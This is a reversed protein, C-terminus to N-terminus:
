QVGGTLAIFADELTTTHTRLTLEAVSGQAILKGAHLIGVRDALTEVEEMYHTTLLITVHGKLSEIAKWLDRRAYVDLGVTPEDLFLVQPNSAMAMAISLRRQNGGSLTSAQQKSVATLGYQVEQAAASAQAQRHNQGYIGAILAINERVTLQPAVAVDQPSVNLCRKAQQTQTVISHGMIHADGSSPRRVGTLMGITTSKGAGNTGLLAYFEGTQITINLDDVATLNGYHKTLNTTVIAANRM